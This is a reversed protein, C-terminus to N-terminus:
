RRRLSDMVLGLVCAFTMPWTELLLLALADLQISLRHRGVLGQIYCLFFFSGQILHAVIRDVGLRVLFYYAATFGNKGM